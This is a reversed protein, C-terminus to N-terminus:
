CANEQGEVLQERKAVLYDVARKAGEGPHQWCSARVANRGREFRADNLCTSIMDGIRDIGATTLEMGLQPLAWQTWLTKDLWWADYLSVDFDTSTYLVPKDHILTFEFIVGSFDSVLIDANALCEFNDTDNNWSIRESEPYAQKLKGILDKESIYSQPHPRVIIRCGTKLIADLIRSGYRSLLAAPGWSPAILVTPAASKGYADGQQLRQAMQARKHSEVRARMDDLYPMGVMPLEKAPLNRMFELQRIEDHQHAGAIMVADYYDLGFMRYLVVEGPAHLTHVYYKVNKSRKWQYVDLSPTTSLVIDANLLNLRAYTKNGEGSFEAHVHPYTCTLAPDNESSTLYTVDIGRADFERCIPEFVTWYRKDEGFIVYPITDKNAEAKKGGSMIFRLKVVATRVAYGAAGAIGILIAFLMSGTGPDIYLLDLLIRGNM